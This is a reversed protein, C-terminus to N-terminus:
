HGSGGKNDGSSSDKGKSSMLSVMHTMMPFPRILHAAFPVMQQIGYLIIKEQVPEPARALAVLFEGLLSNKGDPETNSAM